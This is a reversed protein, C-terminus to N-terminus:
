FNKEELIRLLYKGYENKSLTLGLKEPQGASIWKQRYAIEESCPVKLCQRNESTAIFQTAEVLSEHAGTDLLAFCRRMVEVYLKKEALYLM